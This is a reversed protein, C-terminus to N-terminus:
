SSRWLTVIKQKGEIFVPLAFSLIPIRSSTRFKILENIDGQM